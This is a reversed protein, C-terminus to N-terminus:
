VNLVCEMSSIFSLCAHPVYMFPTRAADPAYEEVIIANSASFHFLVKSKCLPTSLVTPVTSTQTAPKTLSARAVQYITDTFVNFAYLNKALPVNSVFILVCQPASATRQSLAFLLKRDPLLVFCM